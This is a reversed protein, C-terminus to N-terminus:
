TLKSSQFKNFFLMEQFSKDVKEVPVSIASQLTVYLHRSFIASPTAGIMKELPSIFKRIVVDCVIKNKNKMKM